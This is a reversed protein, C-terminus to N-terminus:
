AGLCDLQDDAAARRKARRKKAAKNSRFRRQVTRDFLPIWRDQGTKPDVFLVEKACKM